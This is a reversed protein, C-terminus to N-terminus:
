LLQRIWIFNDTYIVFNTILKHNVLSNLTYYDGRTTEELTEGGEVKTQRSSVVKGAKRRATGLM